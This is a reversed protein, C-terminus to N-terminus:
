LLGGLGPVVDLAIRVLRELVVLLVITEVVLVLAIIVPSAIGAAGAADFIPQNLSEIGQIISDPSLVGAGADVLAAPADALGIQSETVGNFVAPQSGALILLIADLIATVVGFVGQLVTTIVAGLVFARPDSLFTSLTDPLTLDSLSSPVDSGDSASM